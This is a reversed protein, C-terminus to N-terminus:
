IAATWWRLVDINHRGALSRAHDYCSEPVAVHLSYNSNSLMGLHKITDHLDITEDTEVDCIIYSGNKHAVVDPRYGRLVHDIDDPYDPHKNTVIEYGNFKYNKIMRRLITYYVFGTM